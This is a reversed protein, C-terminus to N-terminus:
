SCVHLRVRLCVGRSSSISGGRFRPSERWPRGGLGVQRHMPPLCDTSDGSGRSPTVNTSGSCELRVTFHKDKSRNEAVITAGSDNCLEYTRMLGDSFVQWAIAPSHLWPLLALVQNQPVWLDLFLSPRLLQLLLNVFLLEFDLGGVGKCLQQAAGVNRSVGRLKTREMMATVFLSVPREVVAVLVPKSSHVEIVLSQVCFFPIVAWAVSVSSHLQAHGYLSSFGDSWM